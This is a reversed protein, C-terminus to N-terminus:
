SSSGARHKSSTQKVNARRRSRTQEINARDHLRPILTAIRTCFLLWTSVIPSAYMTLLPSGIRLPLRCAPSILVIASSMSLLHPSNLIRCMGSMGSRSRMPMWEPEMSNEDKGNRDFIRQEGWRGGWFFSQLYHKVSTGQIEVSKSLEHSLSPSYSVITV